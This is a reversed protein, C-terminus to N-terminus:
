SFQVWCFVAKSCRAIIVSDAFCQNLCSPAPMASHQELALAPVAWHRQSPHPNSDRMPGWVRLAACGPGRPLEPQRHAHNIWLLCPARHVGAPEQCVGQRPLAPWSPQLGSGRSPARRSPTGPRPEAPPEAVRPCPAPLRLRPCRQSLGHPRQGGPLKHQVRRPHSVKESPVTDALVWSLEFTCWRM